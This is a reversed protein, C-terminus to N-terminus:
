GGFEELIVSSIEATYLIGNKDIYIKVCDKQVKTRHKQYRLFFSAANVLM